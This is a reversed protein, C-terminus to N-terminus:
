EHLILILIAVILNVHAETFYHLRKRLVLVLVKVVEVHTHTLVCRHLRLAYWFQWFNLYHGDHWFLFNDWENRWIALLKSDLQFLSLVPDLDFLWILLPLLQRQVISQVVQDSRHCKFLVHELNRVGFNRLYLSGINRWNLFLFFFLNNWLWLLLRFGLLEIHFRRFTAIARDLRHINWM